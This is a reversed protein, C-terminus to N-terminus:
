LHTGRARRSGAYAFRRLQATWGYTQLGPVQNLVPDFTLPTDPADDWDPQVELVAFPSWDGRLKACALEFRTGDAALPFAALLLPGAPSRYPMVSSHPHGRRRTPRIVFRGVPGTGASALLLDGGHDAEGAVRLALGLVDPLFDPFGTARSLRVLVPDTGPEDIWAVGTTTRCGKRHILGQRVGGRPHLAKRRRTRLRGVVFFVVGLTRGLATALSIGRRQGSSGFGMTAVKKANVDSV